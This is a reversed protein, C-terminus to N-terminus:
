KQLIADARAKRKKEMEEAIQKNQHLQYTKTAQRIIIEKIVNAEVAVFKKRAEELKQNRAAMEQKMFTSYADKASLLNNKAELEKAHRAKIAKQIQEIEEQGKEDCYKEM